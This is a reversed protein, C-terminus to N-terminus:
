IREREHTRETGKAPRAPETEPPRGAEFTISRWVELLRATPACPPAPESV